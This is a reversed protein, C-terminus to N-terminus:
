LGYLNSEETSVGVVTAATPKASATPSVSGAAVEPYLTGNAGHTPAEDYMNSDRRDSWYQRKPSTPTAVSLRVRGDEGINGDPHALPHEWQNANRQPLALADSLRRPKLRNPNALDLMVFFGFTMGFVCLSMGVILNQLSEYGKTCVDGEISTSFAASVWSCTTHGPAEEIVYAAFTDLLDAQAFLLVQKAAVVTDLNDLSAVVVDRGLSFAIQTPLVGEIADATADVSASVADVRSTLVCNEAYYSSPNLAGSTDELFACNCNAGDVAWVGFWKTCEDTTLDGSQCGGSTRCVPVSAELTSLNASTTALDQYEPMATFNYTLIDNVADSTLESKASQIEASYNLQPAYGRIEDTADSVEETFDYDDTIDLIDILNNTADCGTNTKSINPLDGCGSVIDVCGGQCQLVNVVTEGIDITVNGFEVTENALNVEFIGRGGSKANGVFWHDCVDGVFLWAFICMGLFTCLWIMTLFIFCGGCQVCCTNKNCFGILSILLLLASLGYVALYGALVYDRNAEYYDERAEGIDSRIDAADEMFDIVDNQLKDLEENIDNRADNLTARTSTELDNNITNVADNYASDIQSSGDDVSASASALDSTTSSPVSVAPDTIDSIQPVTNGLLSETYANLSSISTSLDSGADDIAYASTNLSSVGNSFNTFASQVAGLAAIIDNLGEIYNEISDFTANAKCSTDTMYHSLSTSTTCLEAATKGATYTDFDAGELLATKLPDGCLFDMAEEINGMTNGIADHGQNLAEATSPYLLGIGCMAFLLSIVLLSTGIKYNTREKWKPPDKRCCLCCTEFGCCPCCWFLIICIFMILTVVLGIGVGIGGSQIVLDNFYAEIDENDFNEDYWDELKVHVPFERGFATMPAHLLLLLLPGIRDM